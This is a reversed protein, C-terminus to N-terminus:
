TLHDAVKHIETKARQQLNASFFLGSIATVLGATTTILAVSIGSALGRANSNGFVMMVDFTNIMGTVTGLLGLLPLVATLAQIPLLRQHLANSLESVLGERIRRANWSTHDSRQKWSLEVQKLLRPYYFFVFLYREVIISWMLTSLIIIALIVPGGQEYLQHLIEQFSFFDPM